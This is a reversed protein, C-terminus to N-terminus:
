RLEVIGAPGELTAILAPEPGPGVPLDIGLAELATRIREPEPHEARLALLRVGTPSTMSPHASDGWDIFFPILGGEDGGLPATTRWTLMTGDPKERGGSRVEQLSVGRSEAERMLEDLDDGRAAWGVMRPQITRGSFREASAEPQSPDPALIELYVGDGISLLANHSGRGPHQGGFVPRVGTTREMSDIADDLDPVLYILHDVQGVIPPASGARETSRCGPAFALALLALAGAVARAGRHDRNTAM